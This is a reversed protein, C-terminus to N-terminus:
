PMFISVLCIWRGVVSAKAPLSAETIPTPDTKDAYEHWLIDMHNKKINAGTIATKM